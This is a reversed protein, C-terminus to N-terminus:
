GSRGWSTRRGRARGRTWLAPDGLGLAVLDPEAQGAVHPHFVGDGLPAVLEAQGALVRDLVVEDLQQEVPVVAGVVAHQDDALIELLEAPDGLPEVQRQDGACVGFM